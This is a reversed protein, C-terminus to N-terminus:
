VMCKYSRTKSISYIAVSITYLDSINVHSSWFLNIQPYFQCQYPKRTEDHVDV